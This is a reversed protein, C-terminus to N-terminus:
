LTNRKNNNTLYLSKCFLVLCIQQRLLKMDNLIEASFLLYSLVFYFSFCFVVVVVLLLLGEGLIGM